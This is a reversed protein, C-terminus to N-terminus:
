YLCELSTPLHYGTVILKFAAACRFVEHQSGKWCSRGAAAEAPSMATVHVAEPQGGAALVIVATMVRPIDLRVSTASSPDVRRGALWM